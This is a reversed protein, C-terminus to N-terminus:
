PTSAQGIKGWMALARTLRRDVGPGGERRIAALSNSALNITLVLLTFSSPELFLLNSIM